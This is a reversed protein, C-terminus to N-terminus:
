VDGIFNFLCIGRCLSRASTESQISLLRVSLDQDNTSIYIATIQEWLVGGSKKFHKYRVM